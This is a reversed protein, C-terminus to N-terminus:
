GKAFLDLIEQPMKSGAMAYTPNVYFRKIRGRVVSPTYRRILNRTECESIFEEIARKKLGLLPELDECREVYCRKFTTHRENPLKMTFIANENHTISICCFAFLAKYTKNEFKLSSMKEQFVMAELPKKPRPDIRRYTDGYRDWDRAKGRANPEKDSPTVSYIKFDYKFGNGTRMRTMLIGHSLRIERQCKEESEHPIMELKGSGSEEFCYLEWQGGTTQVPGLYLDLDPHIKLLAGRDVQGTANEVQSM